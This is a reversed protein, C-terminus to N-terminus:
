EFETKNIERKITYPSHFIKVMCGFLVVFDNERFMKKEKKLVKRTEFPAM